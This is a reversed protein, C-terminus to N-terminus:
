YQTIRMVKGEPVGASISMDTAFGL